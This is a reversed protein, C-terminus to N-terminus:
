YYIKDRGSPRKAHSFSSKLNDYNAYSDGSDEGTAKMYEPIRVNAGWIRNAVRGCEPCVMTKLTEEKMSQENECEASCNECRYHYIM